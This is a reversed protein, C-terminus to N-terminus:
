GHSAHASGVSCCAVCDRRFPRVSYTCGSCCGVEGVGRCGSGGWRRRPQTRPPTRQVGRSLSRIRPLWRPPARRGREHARLVRNQINSGGAPRVVKNTTTVNPHTHPPYLDSNLTLLDHWRAYYIYVGSYINIPPFTIYVPNNYM